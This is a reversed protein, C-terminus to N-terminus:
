LAHHMARTSATARAKPRFLSSQIGMILSVDKLINPLEPTSYSRITVQESKCPLRSAFIRDRTIQGGEESMFYRITGGIWSGKPLRNLLSEDAAPSLVEGNRIAHSTQETTWLM